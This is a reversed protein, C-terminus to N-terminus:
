RGAARQIMRQVLGPAILIVAAGLVFPWSTAVVDKVTDLLDGFGEELATKMNADLVSAASAIGSLLALNVVAVAAVAKQKVQM